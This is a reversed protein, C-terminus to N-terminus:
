SLKLFEWFRKVALNDGEITGTLEKTVWRNSFGGGFDILWVDDNEDILANGAKGDGWIVDIEHLLKVTETVQAAWKARRTLSISSIDRIDQMNCVASRERPQHIVDRLFGVIKGDEPTVVLGRLKLVRLEDARESTAIKLLTDLERQVDKVRWDEAIKSCFDLNQGDVKVHTVYGRGYLRVWVRLDKTSFRPLYSGKDSITLSGPPKSPRSADDDEHPSQILKTTNNETRFRFTYMSPFLFSNLTFVVSEPTTVPERPSLKDFIPRGLAIIAKFIEKRVAEEEEFDGSHETDSHTEKYRRILDDERKDGTATGDIHVIYRDDNWDFCVTVRNEVDHYVHGPEFRSSPIDGVSPM